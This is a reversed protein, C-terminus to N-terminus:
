RFPFFKGTVPLKGELLLKLRHIRQYGIRNPDIGHEKLLTRLDTGPYRRIAEKVFADSFSIGGRARVFVGTDILLQIEEESLKPASVSISPGNGNTPHGHKRFNETLKKIVQNGIMKTSIGNNELFKRIEHHSVYWDYMRCRFEYTFAIHNTRIFKVNPNAQLIQIEEPSFFVYDTKPNRKRSKRGM